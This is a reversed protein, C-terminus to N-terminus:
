NKWDQLIQTCKQYKKKEWPQEPYGLRTTREAQFQRVNLYNLMGKKTSVDIRQGCVYREAKEIKQIWLKEREEDSYLKNRYYIPMSVKVGNNLRYFEETKERKYKKREFDSSYVFNRGIGKSTLIKSQFHPHAEDVKSVYKVCYAISKENVYQGWDIFGYGWTKEFLEKQNESIWIFGHLHIRQTSLKDNVSRKGHGLETVLWHKIGKKTAKYWRKRFLQFARAAFENADMENKPDIKLMSENSFTLTTFYCQRDNKLEELLRIQWERGKAKRCEYCKGCAIPVYM